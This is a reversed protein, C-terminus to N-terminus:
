FTFTVKFRQTLEDWYTTEKNMELESFCIKPITELTHIFRHMWEKKPILSWIDGCQAVHYSPESLGVYKEVIYEVKTGFRVQM